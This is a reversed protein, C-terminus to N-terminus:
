KPVKPVSIFVMQVPLTPIILHLIYWLFIPDELRSNLRYFLYTKSFFIRYNHLYLCKKHYTHRTFHLNETRPGKLFIDTRKSIYSSSRIICPCYTVVSCYSPLYSLNSWKSLNWNTIHVMKSYKWDRGDFFSWFNIFVYVTLSCAVEITLFSISAALCIM